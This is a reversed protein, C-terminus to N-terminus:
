LPFSDRSDPSPNLKPKTLNPNLNSRVKAELYEIRENSGKISSALDKSEYDVKELEKHVTELLNM